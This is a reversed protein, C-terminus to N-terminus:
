SVSRHYNRSPKNYNCWCYLRGRYLVPGGPTGSRTQTVVRQVVAVRKSGIPNYFGVVPQLGAALAGTNAALMTYGVNSLAFMRGVRAAEFYRGLGVDNVILESYYGARGDARANTGVKREGGELELQM